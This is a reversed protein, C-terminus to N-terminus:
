RNPVFWLWVPHKNVTTSRDPEWDGMRFWHSVIRTGPALDRLLKPRLKENVTSFLYLTVVTAGSIDADFIDGEIFRVRDAVSAREANRTAEAVLKPDLEIGVGRAGFLRAATIVIRGDGSGLDYVVDNKTVGAFKLMGEVVYQPSPVYHIDPQRAPQRTGTQARVTAGTHSRWVPELALGLGAALLVPLVRCSRM